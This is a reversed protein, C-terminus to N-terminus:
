PRGLVAKKMYRKGLKTNSLWQIPGHLWGRRSRQQPTTPDPTETKAQVSRAVSRRKRASVRHRSLLRRKRRAVSAKLREHPNTNM